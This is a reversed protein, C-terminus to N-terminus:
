ASPVARRRPCPYAYRPPLLAVARLPAPFTPAPPFRSFGTSLSFNNSTRQEKHTHRRASAARPTRARWAAPSGRAQARDEIGEDGRGRRRVRRVVARVGGRDVPDLAPPLADNGLRDDGASDHFTHQLRRDSPLAIAPEIPPNLAYAAFMRVRDQSPGPGLGLEYLTNNETRRPAGGVCRPVLACASARMMATMAPWIACLWLVVIVGAVETGAVSPTSPSPGRTALARMPVHKHIWKRHKKEVNKELPTPKTTIKEDKM